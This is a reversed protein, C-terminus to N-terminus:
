FAESTVNENKRLLDVAKAAINYVSKLTLNMVSAIEDYSIKDYFKLYIVERQKKNLGSLASVLRRRQEFTLENKLVKLHSNSDTNLRIVSKDTIYFDTETPTSNAIKERLLKILFSKLCQVHGWSGKKYWLEVFVSEICKEVQSKDTLMKAAYSYLLRVYKEYIHNFAQRNGTQFANWIVSDQEISSTGYKFLFSVVEQKEEQHLKTNLSKM